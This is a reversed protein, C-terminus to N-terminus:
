TEGEGLSLHRLKEWRPDSVDEECDCSGDGRALGCHPCLGPCDPRCLLKEPLALVLAERALGPVDVVLDNIFPSIEEKEWQEPHTPVFEQQQAEVPLAVEQLCRQCPGYVTGALSVTVLYGGTLREVLVQAGDDRLGARYELGGLFVPEPEFRVFRETREGGKLDLQRLDLKPPSQLMM